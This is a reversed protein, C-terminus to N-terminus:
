LAPCFGSLPAFVSGECRAAVAIAEENACASVCLLFRLGVDAVERVRLRELRQADVVGVLAFRGRRCRALM